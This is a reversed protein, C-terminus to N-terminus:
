VTADPPVEEPILEFGLSTLQSLFNKDFYEVADNYVYRSRELVLERGREHASIDFAGCKAQIDAYSNQLIRKLNEDEVSHSIHMREKFEKIIEPTIM